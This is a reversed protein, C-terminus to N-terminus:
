GMSAPRLGARELLELMAPTVQYEGVPVFNFCARFGYKQTLEVLRPIRDYGKKGEVDHTLVLSFRKGDAWGPWLPPVAAAGSDIPWVAAFERRRREARLRRLSTRLRWPLIPKVLYYLKFLM